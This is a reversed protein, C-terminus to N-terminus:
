YQSVYGATSTYGAYWGEFDGDNRKISDVMRDGKADRIWYQVETDTVKFFTNGYEGTPYRYIPNGADDTALMMKGDNGVLWKYEVINYPYASEVFAYKWEVRPTAKGGTYRFVRPTDARGDLVLGNVILYQYYNYPAAVEFEPATWSIEVNKWGEWENTSNIVSNSDWSWGYAKNELYMAAVDKTGNEGYYSPGTVFKTQMLEVQNAIDWDSVVYEGDANLQSLNDSHFFNGAVIEKTENGEADREVAFAAPMVGFDNYLTYLDKNYVNNSMDFVYKGNMDLNAVGCAKWSDKVVANRTTPVFVNADEAANKGFDWVWTKNNIKTQQRQYIKHEGSVEWMFDRFRTEWQPFQNTYRTIGGQANGELYLREYGAHPYALEYSEFKWEAAEPDLPKVMQKSTFKGNIVENYIKGYAPPNTTDYGAFQWEASAVATTMAAAACLLALIKRAKM